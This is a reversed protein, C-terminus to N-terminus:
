KCNENSSTTFGLNIIVFSISYLLVFMHYIKPKCFNVGIGFDPSKVDTGANWGPSEQWNWARVSLWGLMSFTLIDCDLPPCSLIALKVKCNLCILIFSLCMPLRLLKLLPRWKKPATQPLMKMFLRVPCACSVYLVCVWLCWRHPAIASKGRRGSGPVTEYHLHSVVM